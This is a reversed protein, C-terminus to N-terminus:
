TLERVVNRLDARWDPPSIGYDRAIASTDLRSNLPREAQTPYDATLIPAVLVDKGAEAFIAEALSHWSVAPAGAFHYIGSIGRGVHFARAITLCSDAIASASTPGGIQDNVVALRDRTEALRLMTKVFNKGHASFVWSTRLIVHPGGAAEVCREGALKTWGYANVPAPRATETRAKTGSGDFVYDTSIHIFPLGREAAAHAMAGPADGNVISALAEAAETGDVDTWAAANLVVHADTRKILEACADPDSLDASDRGLATVEV